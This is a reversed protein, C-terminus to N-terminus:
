KDVFQTNIVKTRDPFHLYHLLSSCVLKAMQYYSQWIELGFLGSKVFKDNICSLLMSTAFQQASALKGVSHRLYLNKLSGAQNSSEENIYAQSGESM